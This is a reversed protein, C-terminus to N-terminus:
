NAFLAGGHVGYRPSRQPQCYRMVVEVLTQTSMAPEASAGVPKKIIFIERGVLGSVEVGLTYVTKRALVDPFEETM